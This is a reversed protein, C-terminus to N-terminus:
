AGVDVVGGGPFIVAALFCDTEDRGELPLNDALETSTGDDPVVMVTSRFVVDM